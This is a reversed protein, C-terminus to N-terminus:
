NLVDLKGHKIWNKFTTTPFRLRLKELEAESTGVSEPTQGSLKIIALVKDVQVSSDPYDWFKDRLKSMLADLSRQYALDALDQAHEKTISGHSYIEDDAKYGNAHWLENKFREVLKSPTFYGSENFEVPYQYLKLLTYEAMRAHNVGLTVDIDHQTKGLEELTTNHKKIESLFSNFRESLSESYGDDYLDECRYNLLSLLNGEFGKHKSKKVLLQLEEKTTNLQQYTMLGADLYGMLHQVDQELDFPPTEAQKWGRIEEAWSDIQAARRTEESIESMKSCYVMNLMLVIFLVRRM